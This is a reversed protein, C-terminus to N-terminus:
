LTILQATQSPCYTMKTDIITQIKIYIYTRTHTHSQTHTHTQTHTDTHTQRHTDTETHIHTHTHTQTHTHTRNGRKKLCSVLRSNVVSKIQFIHLGVYGIQTKYVM